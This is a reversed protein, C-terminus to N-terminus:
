GIATTAFAAQQGIIALITVVFAVIGLAISRTM